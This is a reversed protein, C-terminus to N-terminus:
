DGKLEELKQKTWENCLELLNEPIQQAKENNVIKPVVIIAAMQKTNPVFLCILMLFALIVPVIKLPRKLLKNINKAEEDGDIDGCYKTIYYFILLVTAALSLVFVFVGVVEKIGDLRCLWYMQWGTM